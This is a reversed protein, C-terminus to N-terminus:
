RELLVSTSAAMFYLICLLLFSQAMLAAVASFATFWKMAMVAHTKIRTRCKQVGYPRTMVALAKSPYLDSLSLFLLFIM